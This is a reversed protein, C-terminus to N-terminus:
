DNNHMKHNGTVNLVRSGQVQFVKVIGTREWRTHLAYSCQICILVSPNFLLTILLVHIHEPHLKRMHPPAEALYIIKVSEFM